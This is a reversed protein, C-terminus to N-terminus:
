YRPFSIQRQKEQEKQVPDWPDRINMRCGRPDKKLRSPSNVRTKLSLFLLFAQTLDLKWCTQSFTDDGGIAHQAKCHWMEDNTASICRTFLEFLLQLFVKRFSKLHILVGVKALLNSIGDLLKLTQHRFHLQNAFFIWTFIWLCLRVM